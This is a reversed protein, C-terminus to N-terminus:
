KIDGDVYLWKGDRKTFRSREKMVTDSIYAEFEVVASDGNDIYEIIKLDQFDSNKSFDLISKKWSKIDDTFDPNEIATTKIIYNADNVAYASYRSKMLTLADKPMAGKHYIHCCKKYKKGSKCPCSDNLSIKKKM